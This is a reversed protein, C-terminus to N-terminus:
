LGDLTERIGLKPNGQPTAPQARQPQPARAWTPQPAGENVWALGGFLHAGSTSGGSGELFEGIRYRFIDSSKRFGLVVKWIHIKIRRVM